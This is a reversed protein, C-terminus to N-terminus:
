HVGDREGKKTIYLKQETITTVGDDSFRYGSPRYVAVYGSRDVAEVFENYRCEVRRLQENVQRLQESLDRICEEHRQREKESIWM